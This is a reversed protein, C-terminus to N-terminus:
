PRCDKFVIFGENTVRLGPHWYIGDVDVDWMLKRTDALLANTVVDVLVEVTRNSLSTPHRKKQSTESPIQM